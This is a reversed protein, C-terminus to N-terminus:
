QAIPPPIERMEPKSLDLRRLRCGGLVVEPLEDDEQGEILLTLDLTLYSAYGSTVCCCASCASFLVRTFM